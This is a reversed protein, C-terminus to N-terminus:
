PKLALDISIAVDTPTGNAVMVSQRASIPPTGATPNWSSIILDYNGPVVGDLLFHGRADVEWSRAFDEGPKALRVMFRTGPAPPGNEFTVTGRVLGSGYNLLIKLDSIQEGQKIEMGPPPIVLGRREIRSVASVRGYDLASVQLHVIGAALGVIRFSGDAAVPSPRAGRGAGGPTQVWAFVRLNSLKARADADAIGEVAVVGFISAGHSARVVLGTLDQDTIQFDVPDARLDSDLQPQVVISYTGPPVQEIQFEGKQNSVTSAPFFTQRSNETVRELGVRANAIAQNTTGDVLSGSVSFGQPARTLRIDIDSAQEGEALEVIKAQSEDTADPYFARTYGTREILYNGDEVRGALVKYRGARLGFVRYIGRDDTQFFTSSPDMTGPKAQEAPIVAINQDIIPHGESDTVKGTIVCGRNLIFDIGEVKEGEALLLATGSRNVGNSDAFVLSSAMPTVYYSGAPVGEIRYNGDADTIAKHLPASRSFNNALLGVIVNAQGQGGVTVRGSVTAPATKKAAQKPAQSYTTAGACSFLLAMLISNRIFCSM